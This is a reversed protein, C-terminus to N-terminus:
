IGSNDLNLWGLAKRVPRRLWPVSVRSGKQLAARQEVLSAITAECSTFGGLEWDWYVPYRLLVGAVLQNLSLRRTRREAVSLEFEVDTTLGWGAYFPMGYTFVPIERLLADFGTLSTMTHVSDCAGLCSIVSATTEVHDAWQLAQAESVHGLRNGSLVDPHPKYVIYADPNNARVAMLLRLNTDVGREGHVCGFRISADDEVQGPVLIVSRGVSDWSAEIVAMGEAVADVNYKTLGESVLMRRVRRARTLEQESFQGTQLIEELDSPRTADFYIGQHDFVLSLPRVLDSGLGVSRIFGDEIRTGDGAMGWTIESVRQARGQSWAALVPTLHRRKWGQMGNVSISGVVAGVANLGARERQKSLWNIVEFITGRRGEYPNWYRSYKFYAAAFLEMVSRQRQRRACGLEDTTVGWGAYWPMGFCTVPKGLLLAEFGMTSTVVYVHDMQEILSVPNVLGTLKILREDEPVASLYGRKAGSSVEPHTKLYFMAEPHRRRAESLMRIFSHEDALGLDVSRDGFTQDVILVREHQTASFIDALPAHNYKSLQHECMLARARELDEGHEALLNVDSNLLNELESPATADYHVGVSDVVISLGPYKQGPFFSRLFGDEVSVFSAGARAARARLRDAAPRHGWGVCVDTSNLGFYFLPARCLDAELLASVIRNRALRRTAACWRIKLSGV